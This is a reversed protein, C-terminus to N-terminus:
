GARPAKGSTSFTDLSGKERRKEADPRQLRLIAQMGFGEWVQLSSYRQRHPDRSFCLSPSCALPLAPICHPFHLCFEIDWSKLLQLIFVPIQNSSPPHAGEAPGDRPLPIQSAWCSSFHSSSPSLSCVPGSREGATSHTWSPAPRMGLMETGCFRPVDCQLDCFASHGWKEVATWCSGTVESPPSNGM